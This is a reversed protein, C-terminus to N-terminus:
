KLSKNLLAIQGAHYVNHQVLGHLMFYNTYNKGPVNKGLMSDDFNSLYDILASFSEKLKTLAKEWSSEDSNEVPPWDEELTPEAQKGSLRQLVIKQWASIHLVIEWITHINESPKSFAEYPKVDKLLELLSSGYWPEGYFSKQLQDRILAIEEM